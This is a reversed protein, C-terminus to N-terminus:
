DHKHLVRESNQPPVPIDALYSHWVDEVAPAAVAAAVDIIDDADKEPEEDDDEDEDKDMAALILDDAVAKAIDAAKKARCM